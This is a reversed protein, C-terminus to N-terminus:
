KLQIGTDVGPGSFSIFTSTRMLHNTKHPGMLTCHCMNNRKWKRTLYDGDGCLPWCVSYWISSIENKTIGIPPLQNEDGVFIVRNTYGISTSKGYLMKFLVAVKKLCTKWFLCKEQLFVLDPPLVIYMSLTM